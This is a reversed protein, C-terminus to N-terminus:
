NCKYLKISLRLGMELSNVQNETRNMEEAIKTWSKGYKEHLGLLKITDEETWESQFKIKPDLSNRFRDRVQKGSRKTGTLEKLKCAIKTWRKNFEGSQYLELVLRDEEGNWLDRRKRRKESKNAHPYRDLPVKSIKPNM